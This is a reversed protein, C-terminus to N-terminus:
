GCRRLEGARRRLFAIEAANDTREIAAGYADAAREGDGLRRHLDARIAHYLYYRDLPLGEILELATLPGHVEAVAVARNLAVVATPTFSV